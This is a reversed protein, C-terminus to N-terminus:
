PYIDVDGFAGCWHLRINFDLMATLAIPHSVNYYTNGFDDGSNGDLYTSISVAGGWANDYVLPFTQQNNVHLTFATELMELGTLALTVNHAM